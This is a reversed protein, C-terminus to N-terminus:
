VHHSEIAINFLWLTYLDTSTGRSGYTQINFCLWLIGCILGMRGGKIDGGPSPLVPDWGGAVRQLARQLFSPYFFNPIHKIKEPGLFLNKPTNKGSPKEIYQFPNSSHTYNLLNLLSNEPDRIPVTDNARNLTNM